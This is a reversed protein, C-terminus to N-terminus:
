LQSQIRLLLCALRSSLVDLKTIIRVDLCVGEHVDYVTGFTLDEMGQRAVYIM